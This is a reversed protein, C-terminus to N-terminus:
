KNSLINNVKGPEIVNLPLLKEFNLTMIDKGRDAIPSLLSENSTMHKISFSTTQLISRDCAIDSKADAVARSTFKQITQTKKNCM